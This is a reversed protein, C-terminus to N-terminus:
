YLEYLFIIDLLVRFFFVFFLLVKLLLEFLFSDYINEDSFIFLFIIEVRGGGGFYYYFYIVSFFRYNRRVM